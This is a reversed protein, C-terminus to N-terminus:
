NKSTTILGVLNGAYANFGHVWRGLTAQAIAVPAVENTGDYDLSYNGSTDVTIKLEAGAVYTIAGNGVPTRVGAIKSYLRVSDAGLRDVIAKVYNNEDAYHIMFGCQTYDAVTPYCRYIGALTNRKDVPVHMTSFTIPKCYVDDARVEMGNLEVFVKLVPAAEAALRTALYNAWLASGAGGYFNIIGSLGYYIYGAGVTKKLWAGYEYWVGATTTLTQRGDGFAATAAINLSQAGAGGTREDAAATLTASSGVWNAPPSGTEMDGNTVVTGGLLPVIAPCVKRIEDPGGGLPMLLRRPM